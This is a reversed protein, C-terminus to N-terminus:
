VLARREFGLYGASPDSGRRNSTSTVEILGERIIVMSFHEHHHSRM